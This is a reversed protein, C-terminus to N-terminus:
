KEGGRDEILADIFPKILAFVEDPSGDANILKVWPCTKTRNQYIESVKQFYDQNKREIRDAEEGRNKRRNEATTISPMLILSLDPQRYITPFLEELAAITPTPIGGAGQYAYSADNFRDTILWEGKQLSPIIKQELHAFRAAFILFLESEPPIELNKDTFIDRLREALACGGPERSTQHAINKSSLYASLRAIQTNKGAGDIGDISIFKGQM